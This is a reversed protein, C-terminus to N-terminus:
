HIHIHVGESWDVGAVGGDSDDWKILAALMGNTSLLHACHVLLPEDEVLQNRMCVRDNPALRPVSCGQYSILVMGKMQRVQKKSTVGLLCVCM